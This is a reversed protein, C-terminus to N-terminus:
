LCYLPQKGLYAKKRQLIPVKPLRFLCKRMAFLGIKSKMAQAGVCKSTTKRLSFGDDQAMRTLSEKDKLGTITQTNTTSKAIFVRSNKKQFAKTTRQFLQLKAGTFLFGM